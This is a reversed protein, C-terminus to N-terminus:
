GRADDVAMTKTRAPTLFDVLEVCGLSLALVVGVIHVRGHADKEDSAAGREHVRRIWADISADGEARGERGGITTM